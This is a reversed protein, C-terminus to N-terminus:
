ARGRGASEVAKRPEPPPACRLYGNVTSSLALAALGTFTAAGTAEGHRIAVLLGGLCFAATLLSVLRETMRERYRLEAILRSREYMDRTWLRKYSLTSSTMSIMTATGIILLFGTLGDPLTWRSVLYCGAIGGVIYLVVQITFQTAIPSYGSRRYSSALM